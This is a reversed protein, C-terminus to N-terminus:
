NFADGLFEALLENFSEAAQSQPTHGANWLRQIDAKWLTPTPLDELYKRNVLPDADGHIIALPMTMRGVIGRAGAFNGSNFAKGMQARVRPDTALATALAGEPLIKGHVAELYEKMQDETLEEAYALAVAPKPHFATRVDAVASLPPAGLLVVGALGKATLQPIAEIAVHGGLSHGVIVFKELQLAEVVGGLHAAFGPLSYSSEPDNAPASEGHGPLDIRILRYDRLKPDTLQAEFSESSQNYGHLFIVAPASGGTDSVGLSQGGFELHDMLEGIQM